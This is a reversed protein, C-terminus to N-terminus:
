VGEYYFQADLDSCDSAYQELEWIAFMENLFEEYEFEIQENKAEEALLALEANILDYDM